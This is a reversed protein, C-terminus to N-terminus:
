RDRDAGALLTCPTFTKTDADAWDPGDVLSLFRTGQATLLLHTGVFSYRAAEDRASAGASRSGPGGPTTACRWSRARDAASRTGPRSTLTVTGHLAAHRRILRGVVRGDERLEEFEEGAPASVPLERGGELADLPINRLPVERSVAEHFAIWRTGGVTLEDVPQWGGDIAASSSGRSCRCSVCTSTSSPSRAPNWRSRPRWRRPSAWARKPRARLASCASSGACRTRRRRRGTRTCCTARTCCPMPSRTPARRPRDRAPRWPRRSCRRRADRGLVDSRPGHPLPRARRHDRPRAPDLRQRPLLHGDARALREGAAPLEAELSWSLQEVAFGTAGRTFVTGSFLLVVPIDGGRLAHIYKTASVDFDYTCAVPLDFERAGEFGQVM